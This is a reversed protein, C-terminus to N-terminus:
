QGGGQEMKMEPEQGTVLMEDVARRISAVQEPMGTMDIHIDNEILPTYWYDYPIYYERIGRIQEKTMNEGNQRLPGGPTFFVTGWHEGSSELDISVLALAYIGSDRGHIVAPMTVMGYSEDVYGEGYVEEFAKHLALLKESAYATDMCNCSVNLELFDIDKVIERVKLMYEKHKQMSLIEEPRIIEFRDEEVNLALTSGNEWSVHIQGIDDVALVKGEMGPTMQPEGRMSLLRIPTDKPYMKKLREVDERKLM